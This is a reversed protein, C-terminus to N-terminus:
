GLYEKGFYSSHKDKNIGRQKRRGRWLMRKVESDESYAKEVMEEMAVLKQKIKDRSVKMHEMGKTTLLL